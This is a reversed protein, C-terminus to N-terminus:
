ANTVRRSNSLCQRRAQRGRQREGERVEAEICGGHNPGISARPLIAHKLRFATSDSAPSQRALLATTKGGVDGMQRGGCIVSTERDLVAEAGLVCVVTRWSWKVQGEVGHLAYQADHRHPVRTISSGELEERKEERPQTLKVKEAHQQRVIICSVDPTPRPGAKPGM